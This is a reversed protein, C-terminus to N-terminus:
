NIIVDFGLTEVYKNGKDNVKIKYGTICSLHINELM